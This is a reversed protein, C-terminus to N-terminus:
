ENSSDDEAAYLLSEAFQLWYNDFDDIVATSGETHGIVYIGVPNVSSSYNETNIDIAANEYMGNGLHKIYASRGNITAEMDTCYQPTNVTGQIAESTRGM